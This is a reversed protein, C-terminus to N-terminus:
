QLKPRVRRQRKGSVKFTPALRRQIRLKNFVESPSMGLLKRIILPLTPHNRNPKCEPSIKEMSIVERILLKNLNTKRIEEREEHNSKPRFCASTKMGDFPKFLNSQTDFHFINKGKIPYNTNPLCLSPTFHLFM